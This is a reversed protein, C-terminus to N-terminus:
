TRGAHNPPSWKRIQAEVTAAVKRPSAAKAVQARIESLDVYGNVDYMQTLDPFASLAADLIGAVNLRLDADNESM